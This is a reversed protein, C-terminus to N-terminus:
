SGSTANWRRLARRLARDDQYGLRAAVATKSFGQALLWAARDRRVADVMGRWSSGEEELRRQLTRPSLALRRAMVQLSLDGGALSAAIAPRLRSSWRPAAAQARIVRTAHERLVAVLRADANPLPVVLDAHALTMTSCSTGFDIQRAGFRGALDRYRPPAASALGVHLPEIERGLLQRARYLVAGLAFQSAVADIGPDGCRVQYAVTAAGDDITLRVDNAATDLLPHYRVVDAIGDGLTAATGFLYDSLHFWGYRWQSAARVGLCPDGTEALGLQWLRALQGAPVRAANDALLHGPLGAQRVLTQTDCGLERLGALVSRVTAAHATPRASDTLADASGLM